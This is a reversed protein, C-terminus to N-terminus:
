PATAHPNKQSLLWAFVEPDRYTMTWTDHGAGAVERYIPQGGARRLAEVMNRSRAVPVARDQDGHVVRLPLHRIEAARAEDGGGCIPLGAAFFRPRRVLLDWTGYGGMSLGTLYIRAPDVAGERVWADVVELTLAAADAPREPTAHTPASWDVEVWKRGPPCQPALLHLPQNKERSLRILDGVGHKVQARNDQGREGAGHLFIILPLPTPSAPRYERYLLTKGDAATYTKAQTEKVPDVKEAAWAATTLCLALCVAPRARM